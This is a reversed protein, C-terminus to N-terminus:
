EENGFYRSAITSSLEDQELEAPRPQRLPLWVHFTSGKGVRGARLASPLDPTSPSEAWIHGRHAEVLGRAIHLGLGTGEISRGVVNGGRHFREFLHPLDEPPVGAGTDQVQLHIGRASLQKGNLEQGAATERLALTVHGGQPTFKVANSLLNNVIQELRRRDGEVFLPKGGPLNLATQIGKEEAVPEMAQILSNLLASLEVREIQLALRGSELRSVDLLDNVLGLLRKGSDHIIELFERQIETLPGPSGNLLTEAYGLISALPTRLEHSVTSVFETRLQELRKRESIDRVVSQIHLPEGGAGYALAVNIEVPLESGDKKLFVREYVPLSEGALLAAIGDQADAYERPAVIDQVSMGVLEDVTYGLMDAAQRNAALHVGDLSIFFVADNTREFLSRFRQERERLTDETKKLETIDTVIAFSGKLEGKANLIPAPSVLTPIRRGDKGLWEIEFAALHDTEHGTMREKLIAQNEENLFDTLSRRLLEDSKYGWMKGLSDNVGIITGNSSQVWVGDSMTEILSRYLEESERLAKEARKRKTVNRIAGLFAAKGGHTVPSIVMEVPVRRGDRRVIATEVMEGEAFARRMMGGVKAREEEAALASMPRGLLEDQSYGTLALAAKNADLCLGGADTIILADQSREFLDRYSAESASLQELTGQLSGTMRDFHAILSGIEDDAGREAGAALRYSLDGAEVHRVGREVYRLRQIILRQVTFLAAGSLLIMLGVVILALVTYQRRLGAHLPMLDMEIWVAGIVDSHHQLDYTEGHLPDAIVFRSASFESVRTETEIAQAILPDDLLRGLWNKENHAVIRGARDVVAVISVDELTATQEVVRQIPFIDEQNVLVEFTYSIEDTLSSARMEMQRYLNDRTTNYEWVLGISTTLLAVAAVSLTLRASLSKM